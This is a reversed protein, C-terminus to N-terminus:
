FTLLKWILYCICLGWFIRNNNKSIEKNILVKVYLPDEKTYISKNDIPIILYDLCMTPLPTTTMEFKLRNDIDLEINSLIPSPSRNKNKNENVIHSHIEGTYLNNDSYFINSTISDFDKEIIKINYTKNETVISINCPQNIYQEIYIIKRKM